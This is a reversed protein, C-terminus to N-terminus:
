CTDRGSQRHRARHSQLMPWWRRQDGGGLRKRCASDFTGGAHTRAAACWCGFCGHICWAVLRMMEGVVVSGVSTRVDGGSGDEKGTRLTKSKLGLMWPQFLGLPQGSVLHASEM